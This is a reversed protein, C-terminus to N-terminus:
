ASSIRMSTRLWAPAVNNDRAIATRTLSNPPNGISSGIVAFFPSSLRPNSTRTMAFVCRRCPAIRNVSVSASFRMRVPKRRPSTNRKENHNSEPHRQLTSVSRQSGSASPSKTGSHTGCTISTRKCSAAIASAVSACTESVVCVFSAESPPGVHESVCRIQSPRQTAKLEVRAQPTEHERQLAIGPPAGLQSLLAHPMTHLVSVGSRQGLAHTFRAVSVDFQPVHPLMQGLPCSHTFRVHWADGSHVCVCSGAHVPM